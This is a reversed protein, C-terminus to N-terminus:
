KPDQTNYETEGSSIQSLRKSSGWFKRSLQGSRMEAPKGVGVVILKGDELGVLIHSYEKTVCVCHIPLRMALPTISLNLSHLDRISLFGQLSGMVIHEEIICIDSVQEKLVQSGLYKGNVSFLHLANTDKLTTKEEISSYIVIHGERSIALNPITLLLSSECPPRLTRMYQGKQITHIIVTGDRSGSVAMDLETSIGVSLVEDTHGYLIQLPKSALGAPVGGQQTIQWIMCTTDRSGSILHIGCYDTALCTVIDMHRINHSIIKGKTLSMVQISNDWHGASFLLKADHSVIFLKSTIELGPAFPGNLSRQTKPNTVTQDRIFTFYNSINRDYPLWGHTGIVYNMSVTVLLEPSGQSMFSRSQNRPVIAKILPIGDSIGEIFFSKLEPLHQFLNLTSTETRTQKQVAEEASLRPPHPEKLLQCPTQGFNNIMGELAKREKEDTLADLDVAGEYTCYYFVNLAEVAAPGRQKYGFILDIWEHLHASVYESELAKRHKYIFDEASKAWKPLIVDNVQEKSVQLRGLNFQNQNELFEPFYFFEPILEKVDNPSDMLTQWTAPISHFQRDACDFRGSQLQIHLTTFPEIRILYHMVGASNSYHTGYHFKDITGLPDEFNEYKERVAKANKDNVVGIPKSLDRFVSPNNLDLEESTYDQLIWPFVPYQALDNYTRGAMTNIQILYDFNSIERNVWKQTLGSAKFLEQPSRTGYSNPSHFSLLRSYVKNRVEKKFNLFYNSQDVHFIELASRRLNYRRLHIEQVQSHPWKFDFGVGDEKEISGDYFYIHQTTIELRGPIIDIITVLECDVSLVLKEKQDQEKKEDVYMNTRAIIEEESLDLKDEEMDSVKVQKVVELLLSDSSPESHQVGLNDRLASAEEHTKFNYNPVLKLRMRSYNEVNALKWHIPNQKREAWPGRECTLYVQIAKWRRLTALQQGSLQKLMNNYRLNEQYAKRNFPEVFNKQFKLKSEGGERDRKHMNVMLAEYCNKWYLAMNEHGDYFTHTEYQKMYPIIYKEIYVQWENSSCYEQFDEFFSSSGNTFPLSPLHLNMFLLEYIKSVLTRVLPILFSYIETQEKISQSLVHELKGLIYCAEEQNEIVKTQLLTNLKASAMACVQLNGKGIFGLLLQIQMQSLKVWVPSESYWVSLSDFLLMMDELLKETWTNANALEESQLFDQIILMLRFANEATVPNTKAERNEAVAWELMKQLLILKIEDSPRLLESSIGSKTLAVFVQGRELWTDEDSKELGKCMVYNLINTLLQLLEEECREQSELLSFDDSFGVDSAISSEKDSQVSFSKTSEVPSPTSPLSDPMQSGSDSLECSDIGSLGLSLHSPNNHWFEEQNESKFSLEGVSSDEQFLPTNSDLSQRDELSWPDSPVDASAVSNMKEDDTKEDFNRKIDESSINKDNDKMLITRNHKHPTNGNEFNAKFFLRVLTDQWGVQQSIQHAADPQSQLIQLIKRCIVVRVNIYTRHSIYVVSLLDKFNVATDTNIIQNTLNKILSTNVPAENLLLGLGSYGVERLRIRQKSREYVNTCKLMQEMVKFIIERLKDSYKQNLLLAYLIDANGPEFLLLFLQGRTPSARLLSFLIDLIGFLQEEENIAAIYGMISQIEEHTGGKCLFYKILGYLSTRITRIDDLSLESYKCDTGYYIRLSDLLFQVGYKKRFVRRSDKIITSLYQIHGIRFPFDGHNWIRFDFLLYQYMQQLLQTNKELSVQEILLQIAMLVNVDMLTNPVKQLLAGLTAVGHSHILNDQNIPHRQIFHKVILIFTAVLSRELRSESTKTPTSVARDGEIPTLLESVTRENVGEPIQGESIHSIQELLPFLVNLGGICNIIDKIDWNVVKNGTLRGHLCNTSLDLCISNKCAKATYHLLVNGPLDALDSEQFKWPSLCNPGALYLAKVQPPQLAEYFIIVSGLQGELSTPCGWESDQTGASILKTVSKSKEITGGWSASSLIGGFSTRHPTIPSSFPPDPIQSPPPTTTRQGASGICCSIFPENMAPFRLPASAKQQGNDYIYVLSQGFPRKGPMHVITINHWLSDCFSHDPLMVTAYERKTCVAVVLMGSHTIFAEFGMGSGTFFSYLQKRKGGKNANGLALQDQDLCFWASFSFASGPWKQISPVSIGAMSHSLNFYQLASELSQKRAMTLIARTVPTTYPHFCESEDVRLLRLLRRIEESSVSQSGLSGHLAILNEACTRHLAPHSDLTEIIRIGMNANVCTTRSQRNICCIRKLWDSIFIQLDQSELEPLWQILLLLPQVNSIGLIGVSTHDGEVAMNMLEKLLELSPQGLSKLVEFMHTYGIREKFVEKAAPSKNMVATLAQITSVALCDLHGQFAQDENIETLLKNALDKENKDAVKNNANLFLKCNQLLRILHEFCNSNLFIAQLVPRDTCNFMATITNLMKIQLTIFWSEWERSRRQKPLASHDSNLLKFYNELIASTEVQRQDSSSTLLIHVVETLCKLTLEVKRGVEDPNRDEWSDCDALVRMLVEMTAPSIAQLANKQGGAIIAGFLHLLCCKLSEKLHESEQFCQYFFPVFEVTLSAPKYKQRSKEVTSLIRGSIRHRWNRYPDYLSECFALAHIVFEEISTQDALEKEKKKSKLQQIYLTTMTIVHNIYSCTGIEEVNSLNRCLIIFFKVLLISLAQQQEELGDAMKQVCHLLQIRLVQLINDPLLSIGPPVDDVRTPLKEFDVDLFQEYSSVFNELWLKLYDPDKKTCYLMWLEFLRERSAM